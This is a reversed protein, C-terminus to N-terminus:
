LEGPAYANISLAHIKTQMLNGLANYILRHRKITLLGEFQPSVITLNYHGGGSRAGAHGAHLASDDGIEITEPALTALRQQMEEITTM